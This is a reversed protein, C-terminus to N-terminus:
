VPTSGPAPRQRPITKLRGLTLVTPVSPITVVGDHHATVNLLQRAASRAM